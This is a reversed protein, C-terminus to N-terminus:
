PGPPWGWERIHGYAGSWTTKGVRADHHHTPFGPDPPRPEGRTAGDLWTSWRRVFEFERPPAGCAWLHAIKVPAPAGSKARGHDVGGRASADEDVAVRGASCPSAIRHCRPRAGEVKRRDIRVASAQLLVLMGNEAGAASTARCAGCRMSCRFLLFLFSGGSTGKGAGYGGRTDATPGRRASDDRWTMRQNPECTASRCTVAVTRAFAMRVQVGRSPDATSAGRSPRHWGNESASGVGVRMALSYDGRLWTRVQLRRAYAEDPDPLHVPDLSARARPGQLGAERCCPIRHAPMRVFVNRKREWV